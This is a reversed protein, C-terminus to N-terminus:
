ELIENYFEAHEDTVDSWTREEYEIPSDDVLAQEIASPM